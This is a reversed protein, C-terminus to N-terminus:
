REIRDELLQEILGHSHPERLAWPVVIRELKKKKKERFPAHPGQMLRSCGAGARSINWGLEPVAIRM